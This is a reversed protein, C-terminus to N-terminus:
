KWYKYKSAQIGVKLNPSMSRILDDWGTEMTYTILFAGCNEWVEERTMEPFDHNIKLFYNM